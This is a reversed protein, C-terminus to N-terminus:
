WLQFRYHITAQSCNRSSPGLLFYNFTFHNPHSETEEIRKRGAKEEGWGQTSLGDVRETSLTRALHNTRQVGSRAARTWAEAPTM